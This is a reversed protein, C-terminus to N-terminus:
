WSQRCERDAAALAFRCREGSVSGAGGEARVGETQGCAPFERREKVKKKERRGEREPKKEFVGPIIDGRFDSSVFFVHAAVPHTLTLGVWPKFFPIRGMQHCKVSPLTGKRIPCYNYSHLFANERETTNEKKESLSM